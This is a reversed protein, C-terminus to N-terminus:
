VRCVSGPYSGPAQRSTPLISCAGLIDVIHLFVRPEFSELILSTSSAGHWAISDLSSSSIAPRMEAMLEKGAKRENIPKKGTVAPDIPICRDPLWDEPCRKAIRLDRAFRNAEIHEGGAMFGSEALNSRPIELEDLSV